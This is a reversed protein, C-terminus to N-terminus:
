LGCMGECELAEFLNIQGRDEENSFDVEDLPRLSRHTFQEARLVVRPGVFKRIAKDVVVADAFAEPSNMKLDRWTANDHFPCGVCASKPPVRYQREELWRVCDSRSMRQELLPFRKVSFKLKSPTARVIEDLSIGIWQEVSGPALRDHPGKGLIERLKRNIPEIKYHTTCQRRGIGDRVEEKDTIRTGVVNDDSDLVPVETGAPITTKLFYPVTVFRGSRASSRAILDDRINGARVVYVPYSLLPRLYEFYEYSAKREWGPDATIACDPKPGVDGREAMLALTMSQVGVGLSIVRLTM